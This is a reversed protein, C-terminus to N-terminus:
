ALHREQGLAGQGFRPLCAVGLPVSVEAGTFSKGRSQPPRSVRRLWGPSPIPVMVGRVRGMAAGLVRGPVSSLLLRRAPGSVGPPPLLRSPAHVLAELGQRM